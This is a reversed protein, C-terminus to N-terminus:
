IYTYIAFTYTCIKYTYNQCLSYIYIYSLVDYTSIDNPAILIIYGIKNKKGIVESPISM